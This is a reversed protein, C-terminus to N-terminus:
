LCCFFLKFLRAFLFVTSVCRAPAVSPWCPAAPSETLSLTRASPTCKRHCFIYLYKVIKANNKKENKFNKLGNIKYSSLNYKVLDFIFNTHMYVAVSFLKNVKFNKFVKVTQGSELV